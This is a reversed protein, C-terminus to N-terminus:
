DAEPEREGRIKIKGRRWNIFKREGEQGFVTGAIYVVRKMVFWEKWVACNQSFPRLVCLAAEIM